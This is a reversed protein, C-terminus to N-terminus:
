HSPDNPAKWIPHFSLALSELSTQSLYNWFIPEQWGSLYLVLPASLSCSELSHDVAGLLRCLSHAGALHNSGGERAQKLCSWLHTQVKGIQFSWSDKQFQKLTKHTASKCHLLIKLTFTKRPPTLGEKEKGQKFLCFVFYFLCPLVEQTLLNPIHNKPLQNKLFIWYHVALLFLLHIQKAEEICMYVFIHGLNYMPLPRLLQLSLIQLYKGM